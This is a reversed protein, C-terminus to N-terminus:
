LSTTGAIIIAVAAIDAEEVTNVNNMTSMADAKLTGTPTALWIEVRLWAPSNMKEIKSLTITTRTLYLDSINTPTSTVRTEAAPFKKAGLRNVICTKKTSSPIPDTM